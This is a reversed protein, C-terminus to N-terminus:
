GGFLAAVAREFVPRIVGGAVLLALAALVGRVLRRTGLSRELATSTQSTLERIACEIATFRESQERQLAAFRDNQERQFAAFRDNLERQFAAFRENQEREFATFRENQEREFATFRENQERSWREFRQVARAESAAIEARVEQRFERFEQRNVEFEHHLLNLGDTLKRDLARLEAAQVSGVTEYEREGPGTYPNDATEPPATASPDDNHNRTHQTM